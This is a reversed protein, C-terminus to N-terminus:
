DDLYFVACSANGTPNVWLGTDFRIGNPGFYYVGTNVLVTFDAGGATATANFFEVTDTADTSYPCYGILRVAATSIAATATAAAMKAGKYHIDNFALAM